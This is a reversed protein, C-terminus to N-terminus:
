KELFSTHLNEVSLNREYHAQYFVLIMSSLHPCAMRIDKFRLLPGGKSIHETLSVVFSLAPPAPAWAPYFRVPNAWSTQTRSLPLSSATKLFGFGSSCIVFGPLEEDAGFHCGARAFCMRNEKVCPWPALKGPNM